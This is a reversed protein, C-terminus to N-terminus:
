KIPNEDSIIKETNSSNYGESESYGKIFKNRLEKIHRLTKNRQM